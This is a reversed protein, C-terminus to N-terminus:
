LAVRFSILNELSLILCFSSNVSQMPYPLCDSVKQCEECMRCSKKWKVTITMVPLLLYFLESSRNATRRM